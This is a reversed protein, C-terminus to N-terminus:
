GPLVALRLSMSGVSESSMLLFISSLMSFSWWRVEIPSSSSSSSFGFGPDVLKLSSGGITMGSVKLSGPFAAAGTPPAAAAAAVAPSSPLGRDPADFIADSTSATSAAGFSPPPASPVAAWPPVAPPPVALAADDPSM